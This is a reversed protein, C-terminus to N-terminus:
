KLWAFFSLESCVLMENLEKQLVCIRCCFDSSNLIARFQLFGTSLNSTAHYTERRYAPPRQPSSLNGNLPWAQEYAFSCATLLIM